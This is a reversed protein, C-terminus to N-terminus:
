QSTSRSGNPSGAIPTGEPLPRAAVRLNLGHAFERLQHFWGFDSPYLWLTVTTDPASSELVQRFRSGLKLAEDVTEADLTEAPVISWRSVSIRFANQGRQIAQLASVAQRQVIYQMRFGEVPGVMGEYRHFKMVVNRRNAVQEKLRELLAPLPVYAIRGNYLRFHLENDVVAEGVPSLRHNLRDIPEAAAPATDLVERLKQTEEKVQQLAQHVYRRRKHLSAVTTRFANVQEDTTFVSQQLRFTEEALRERESALGQLRLQQLQETQQRQQETALLQNLEEVTSATTEHTARLNLTLEAIQQDLEAASFHSDIEPDDLRNTNDSTSDKAKFKSQADINDATVGPLFNNFGFAESTSLTVAAVSEMEGASDDWPWATPASALGSPEDILPQTAPIQDVAALSGTDVVDGQRAVKVGAVVILIILIGVINAIIDLFSDSGFEQEADTGRRSM